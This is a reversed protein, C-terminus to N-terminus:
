RFQYTPTGGGEFFPLITIIWTKGWDTFHNKNASDHVGLVVDLFIPGLFTVLFFMPKEFINDM